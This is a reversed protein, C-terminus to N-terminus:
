NKHYCPENTTDDQVTSLTMADDYSYCCQTCLSMILDLKGLNVLARSPSSGDIYIRDYLEITPRICALISAKRLTRDDQSVNAFFNIISKLFSRVTNYVHSSLSARVLGLVRRQVASDARDFIIAQLLDMESVGSGVWGELENCLEDRSMPPLSEIKKM